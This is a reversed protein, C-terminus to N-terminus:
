LESGLQLKRACRASLFVGGLLVCRVSVACRRLWTRVVISVVTRRRSATVNRSPERENAPPGPPSHAELGCAEKTALTTPTGEFLSGRPPPSSSGVKGVKWSTM